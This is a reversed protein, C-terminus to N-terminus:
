CNCDYNGDHQKGEHSKRGCLPAGSSVMLDLHQLYELKASGGIHGVQQRQLISSHSKLM